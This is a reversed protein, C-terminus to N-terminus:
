SVSAAGIESVDTFILSCTMYRSSIHKSATVRVYEGVAPMIVTRSYIGSHRQLMLEFAALRFTDNPCCDLERVENYSTVSALKWERNSSYGQLTIQHCFLIMTGSKPQFSLYVNM